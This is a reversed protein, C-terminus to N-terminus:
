ELRLRDGPAEGDETPEDLPAITDPEDLMVSPIEIQGVDVTQTALALDSADPIVLEEGGPGLLIAIWRLDDSQELLIKVVMTLPVSLLMGVPGWVWGWFVLSLFVVLASLGLKRGMMRPELVSGIVINIVFYGILVILSEQWGLQVFALLIPPLAAVLSGVTPIYNLAFALIGWLIASDVGVTLCLFFALLGTALSVETKVRVYEHVSGVARRAESVGGMSESFAEGLKRPFGAAEALIFLVTLLVFLTQSLIDAFAGVAIGMTDVLKRLDLVERLQEKLAEKSLDTKAVSELWALAVDIQGSWEADLQDRYAGLQGRFYTM